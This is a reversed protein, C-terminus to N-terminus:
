PESNETEDFGISVSKASESLSLTSYRFVNELVIEGATRM